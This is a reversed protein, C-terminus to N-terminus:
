ANMENAVIIKIKDYWLFIELFDSHNYKRKLQTVSVIFSWSKPIRYKDLLM